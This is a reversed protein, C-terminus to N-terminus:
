LVWFTTSIHSIDEDTMVIDEWCFGYQKYESHGIKLGECYIGTCHKINSNYKSTEKGLPRVSYFYGPLDQLTAHQVQSILLYYTAM